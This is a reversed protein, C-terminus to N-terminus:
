CIVIRIKHAKKRCPYKFGQQLKPNTAFILFPSLVAYCSALLLRTNNVDPNVNTMTLTHIWMSNDMGFLLVYMVVLMIVARCAKYEVTKSQVKESSRMGKMARAHNNLVFVIYTSSITMLGVSIVDRVASVLGNIIYSMYGLFDVDCYVIRLTYPSLTDNSRARAYLFRSSYISMNIGLLIVMIVSVNPTVIQKLYKWKTTVPAILICQHCSLLSTMCISMARSVRYIFVIFKCQRDDLLDELGISNLAQPVVRTLLVFVNTLSLTMLITNTPLLKKELIKIYAFKLLIFINGPIGFVLMLFFGVSKILHHFEM